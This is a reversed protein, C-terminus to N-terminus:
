RTVARECPATTTTEVTTQREVLAIVQQLLLRPVEARALSAMDGKVYRGFNRLYRVPVHDSM